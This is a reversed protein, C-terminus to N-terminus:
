TTVSGNDHNADHAALVICHGIAAMGAVRVTSSFKARIHVTGCMCYQLFVICLDNLTMVAVAQM